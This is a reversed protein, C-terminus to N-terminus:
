RWRVCRARVFLEIPVTAGGVNVVKGVSRESALLKLTQYAAKKSSDARFVIRGVAGTVGVLAINEYVIKHPNFSFFHGLSTSM